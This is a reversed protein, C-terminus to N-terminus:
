KGRDLGNKGWTDNTVEGTRVINWLIFHCKSFWGLKPTEVQVFYRMTRWSPILADNLCRINVLFSHYSRFGQWERRKSSSIKIKVAVLPEIAEIKKLMVETAVITMRMDRRGQIKHLVVIWCGPIHHFQAKEHKDMSPSYLTGLSRLQNSSFM